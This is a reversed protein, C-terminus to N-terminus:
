TLCEENYLPLKKDHSLFSFNEAKAQSLLLRDFPDNHKKSIRSINLHSATLIHKVIINLPHFNSEECFSVFEEPTVNLNNKPSDHKM